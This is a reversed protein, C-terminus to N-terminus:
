HALLSLFVGGSRCQSLQGPWSQAGLLSGLGTRERGVDGGQVGEGLGGGLEGGPSLRPDDRLLQLLM